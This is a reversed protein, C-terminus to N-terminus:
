VLLLALCTTGGPELRRLAMQLVTLLESRWEKQSETLAAHLEQAVARGVATPGCTARLTRARLAGGSLASPQVHVDIVVRTRAMHRDQAKTVRAGKDDIM